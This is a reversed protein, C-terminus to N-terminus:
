DNLNGATVWKQIITIDCASLKNAPPMVSFGATHNISGILKNNAVSASVGIYTSLDVGGSKNSGSHCSVCWTNLIPKVGQSYTFNTSDCTIGCATTNSAGMSIWAKIYLVEDSSLKGGVPMSPNNGKITTYAESLLPHGAKVAKMIGEYNSFDYGAEKDTANHCGQNACKTVFIPLINKQFCVDTNAVDHTCNFNILAVMVLGLVVIRKM